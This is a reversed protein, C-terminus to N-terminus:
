GQPLGRPAGHHFSGLLDWRETDRHRGVLGMTAGAGARILRRGASIRPAHHLTDSSEAYRRGGAPFAPIRSVTKVPVLAAAPAKADRDRLSLRSRGGGAFDNRM